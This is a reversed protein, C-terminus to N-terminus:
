VGKLRKPFEQRLHLAAICAHCPDGAECQDCVEQYHQWFPKEYPLLGALNNKLFVPV